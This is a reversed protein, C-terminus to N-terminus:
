PRCNVSMVSLARKPRSKADVDATVSRCLHHDLVMFHDNYSQSSQSQLTGDQFGQYLPTREVLIDCARRPNRQGQFRKFLNESRYFRLCVHYICGQMLKRPKGKAPEQQLFGMRVM